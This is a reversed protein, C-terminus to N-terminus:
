LYTYRMVIRLLIMVFSVTQLQFFHFKSQTYLEEVEKLQDINVKSGPVENELNENNFIENDERMGSLMSGEPCSNDFPLVTINNVDQSIENSINEDLTHFGKLFNM